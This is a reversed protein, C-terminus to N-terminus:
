VTNVPLNYNFILTQKHTNIVSIIILLPILAATRAAASYAKCHGRKCWNDLPKQDNINDDKNNAHQQIIVFAQEARKKSDRCYTNPFRQLHPMDDAVLEQMVIEPM